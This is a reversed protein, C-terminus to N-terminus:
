GTVIDADPRSAWDIWSGDYLWTEAEWGAEAFGLLLVCASVGSGCTTIVQDNQTLGAQRFIRLLDERGLFHGEEDVLAPFPVSVAGPMHGSPLGPRPEPETGRFRGEPRADAIEMMGTIIADLVVERRVVHPLPAAAGKVEPVEIPCPGDIVTGGEEKWRDFGGDLVHVHSFGAERLLFWARPASFFGADDYVVIQDEKAIGAANAFAEVQERSPARHPHETSPTAILDIDFFAAEPIHAKAFEDEGRRGDAPMYWRADIFRPDM